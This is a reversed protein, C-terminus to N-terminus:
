YNTYRVNNKNCADINGEKCSIMNGYCFNAFGGQDNPITTSPNSYFPRLSQEFEFQDGLSKFLKDSIDPQDPNSERVLLKAQELIENNINENYAPPAPKKNPHFDIDTNLVNGFPNESNPKQFVDSPHAMKKINAINPNEFNEIDQIKKSDKKKNELEQYYYLLFISFLTIICIIILRYNRSIVFSVLTILIVLRSISNLKQEYTMIETPFFEFIYPQKLLINPDNSWFPIMKDNKINEKKYEIKSDSM